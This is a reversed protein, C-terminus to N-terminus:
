QEMFTQIVKEKDVGKEEQIDITLKNENRECVGM